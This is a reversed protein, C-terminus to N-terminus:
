EGEDEAHDGIEDALVSLSREVLSLDDIHGGISTHERPWAARASNLRKIAAMIQTRAADIQESAKVPNEDM